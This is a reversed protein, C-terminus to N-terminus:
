FELINHLQPKLKAKTQVNLVKIYNVILKSNERAVTRQKKIQSMIVKAPIQLRMQVGALLEGSNEIEEYPEDEIVHAKRKQPTCSIENQDGESCLSISEDYDHQQFNKEKDKEVVKTLYSTIPPQISKSTSPLPELTSSKKEIHKNILHRRFNTYVWQPQVLNGSKATKDFKKIQINESCNLVPCKIVAKYTFTDCSTDDEFNEELKVQINSTQFTLEDQLFIITNTECPLM